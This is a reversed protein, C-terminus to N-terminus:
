LTTDVVINKVARTAQRATVGLYAWLGVEISSPGSKEEFRFDFVPSEFVNVSPGHVAALFYNEPNVAAEMGASVVLPLGAIWGDVALSGVGIANAPGAMSAVVLPRGDLDKLKLLAAYTDYDVGLFTARAYIAKRVASAADIISDYAFAANTPDIFDALAVTLPTGVARIVTGIRREREAVYSRTLDAIIMQDAVPNSANLLQRSVTEKGVVTSPTVSVAAADYDDGDAIPDNEAAQDAVTTLATQGPLQIVRGDSIPYKTVAGYLAADQQGMTTFADTLWQPPVVGAVDTTSLARTHEAIRAVSAGDAYRGTARFLDGFYSHQGGEQVSRYHGPNRDTAETTSTTREVGARLSAGLDAVAASRNEQETLMEIQSALTKATDAQDKVSRLEEDSLDRDETAARTQLGTISAQLATYQDRLRALYPNIM